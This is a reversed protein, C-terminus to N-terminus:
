PGESVSVRGTIPAVTVRYTHTGAVVTVTGDPSPAGLPDFTVASGVDFSASSISVSDLGKQADFDVTYVQKTIPHILPGSENSVTYSNGATSFSVTIDAQTVIAQNQAYELDSMVLRAASRAQLGSTGIARPIVMVAIIAMILIVVIMEALTFAWGRPRILCSLCVRGRATRNARLAQPKERPM